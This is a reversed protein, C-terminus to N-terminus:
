RLVRFGISAWAGMEALATLTHFLIRIGDRFSRPLWDDEVGILWGAYRTLHAIGDLEAPSSVLGMGIAGAPPAILAGVLTAAMDTQNVPVGWEDNRWDPM